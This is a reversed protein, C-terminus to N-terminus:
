EGIFYTNYKNKKIFDLWRLLEKSMITNKNYTRVNTFKLISKLVNEFLLFKINKWILGKHNERILRNLYISFSHFNINIYELERIYKEVSSLRLFDPSLNIVEESGKISKIKVSTVPYEVIGNKLSYVNGQIIKGNTLNINVDKDRQLISSNKYGADKLAVYYSDNASFGGPRFSSAHVGEQELFSKAYTLLELQETHNYKDFEDYKCEFSLPLNYAHIHPEIKINDYPKLSFILWKVFETYEDQNINKQKSSLSVFFTAKLERKRLEEAMFMSSLYVGLLYDENRSIGSVITEIDFTLYIKKM